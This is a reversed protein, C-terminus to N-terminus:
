DHMSRRQLIFHIITNKWIFVIFSQEAAFSVAAEFFQM